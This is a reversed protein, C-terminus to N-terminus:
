DRILGVLEPLVAAVDGRVTVEALKDAVTPQRNFIVLQSGRRRALLPLDSAPEVELSTGVAIMLDCRLAAEQARRLHDYPLPEGFLVVNPKLLHGCEDCRLVEGREVQPWLPESPLERACGLCTLARLDGHLEVVGGSGARQHLSDINQTVLLDLKGARELEALAYHAANPAATRIARAVPVFWHYFKDPHDHFGWISAVEMPDFTRWLGSSPSRFDPIGSPTSVGAGTLVVIHQASRILDAVRRLAPDTM